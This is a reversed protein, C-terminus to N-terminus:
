KVRDHKSDLSAVSPVEGSFTFRPCGRPPSSLQRIPRWQFGALTRSQLSGCRRPPPFIAIGSIPIPDRGMQTIELATASPKECGPLVIHLSIFRRFLCRGQFPALPFGGPRPLYRGSPGGNFVPSTAARSSGCRRPPPFIANGSIPIPDCGM